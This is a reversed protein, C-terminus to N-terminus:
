VSSAMLISADQRQMATAAVRAKAAGAVACFLYSGPALSVSIRMPLMM